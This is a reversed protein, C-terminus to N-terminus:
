FMRAYNLHRGAAVPGTDFVIPGDRRTTYVYRMGTPTAVGSAHRSYLDHMQTGHEITSDSIIFARPRCFQFVESCYGNARGHHSAVFYNVSSLRDRFDQRQLLRMWGPREIDGPFVIHVGDCNLFTVVSLNNTDDFESLDNFYFDLDFGPLNPLQGLYMCGDILEAAATVAPSIVGCDRHKMRLLSAADISDNKEVLRLMPRIPNNLRM